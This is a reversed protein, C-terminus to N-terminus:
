IFKQMDSLLQNFIKPKKVSGSAKIKEAMDNFHAEFASPTNIAKIVDKDSPLNHMYLAKDFEGKPWLTIVGKSIKVGGGEVCRNSYDVNIFEHYGWKLGIKLLKTVVKRAGEETNVPLVYTGTRIDEIKEVPNANVRGEHKKVTYQKM